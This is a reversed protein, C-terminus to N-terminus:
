DRHSESSPLFGERHQLAQHVSPLHIHQLRRPPKLAAAIPQARFKNRSSQCARPQSELNRAIDERFSKFNACFAAFSCRCTTNSSVVSTLSISRESFVITASFPSNSFM